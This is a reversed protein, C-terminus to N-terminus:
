FQPHLNENASLFVSALLCMQVVNFPTFEFKRLILPHLILQECFRHTCSCWCQRPGQLNSNKTRSLNYSSFYSGCGKRLKTWKQDILKMNKTIQKKVLNIRMEHIDKSHIYRGVSGNLNKNQNQKNQRAPCMKAAFNLCKPQGYCECM